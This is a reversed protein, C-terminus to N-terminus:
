QMEEKERSNNQKSRPNRLLKKAGKEPLALSDTLFQLQARRPRQEALTPLNNLVATQQHPTKQRKLHNQKVPKVERPRQNM